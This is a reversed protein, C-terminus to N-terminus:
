PIITTLTDDPNDGIQTDVTIESIPAILRGMIQPETEFIDQVQYMYIHENVGYTADPQSRYSIQRIFIKKDAENYLPIYGRKPLALAIVSLMIRIQRAEKALLYIEFNFDSTQPPQISAQFFGPKLPDSNNVTYQRDPSGGLSGPLFQGPVFVIRPVRQMNKAHPSSNNFIEIVYGQITAIAKLANNYDIVGQDTDPFLTIDPLYGKDVLELRISHFISREVLEITNSLPTLSM